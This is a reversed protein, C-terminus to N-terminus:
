SESSVDAALDEPTLIDVIPLRNDGGQELRDHLAGEFALLDEGSPWHDRATRVVVTIRLLDDGFAGVSPEVAVSEVHHDPFLRGATDRVVDGVHALNLM